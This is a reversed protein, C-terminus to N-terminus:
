ATFETRNIVIAARGDRADAMGTAIRYGGAILAVESLTPIPIVVGPALQAVEGATLIPRALVGRAQTRTQSLTDELRLRWDPDGGADGGAENEIAALARIPVLVGIAGLAVGRAELAFGCALMPTKAALVEGPMDTMASLAVARGSFAPAMAEVILAVAREAYRFGLPTLGREFATAESGDGGYAYEILRDVVADPIGILGRAEGITVVGFRSVPGLSAVCNALDDEICGGLTASVPAGLMDGPVARLAREFRALFGASPRDIAPFSIRGPPAGLM